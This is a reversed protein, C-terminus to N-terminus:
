IKILKAMFFGDTHHEHPWLRVHNNSQMSRLRPSLSVKAEQLEPHAALIGSIVDENEEPEMSCTVYYLETHPQMYPLVGEIIKMQDKQHIIFTEPKLRWKADPNRRLTGTGSCPADILIIDPGKKITSTEGIKNLDAPFINYIGARSARRKLDQLKHARTDTAVVRGKNQMLGAMFLSKGGGGACVDWVFEGPQPNMIECVLQSGEDQVEFFGRQFDDSELVQMRENLIIGYSSLSAPEFQLNSKAFRGMQRERTMKIPNVRISLRPRENSAALIKGATEEGWRAIWRDVLWVPFSYRLAMSEAANSCSINEPLERNKIKVCLTESLVASQPILRFATCIERFENATFLDSMFGALIIDLSAPASPALHNSWVSILSRHRYLSFIIESFFRRDRSGFKKRNHFFYNRLWADSPYESKQIEPWLRAAEETQSKLISLQKTDM